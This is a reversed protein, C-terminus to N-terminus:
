AAQFDQDGPSGHEGSQQDDRDNVPVVSGLRLSRDLGIGASEADIEHDDRHEAALQDCHYPTTQDAGLDARGWGPLSM